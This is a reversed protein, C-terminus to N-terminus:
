AAARDAHEAEPRLDCLLEVTRQSAGRGELVLAAARGGLQKAYSPEELCRRVFALMEREDAVVM